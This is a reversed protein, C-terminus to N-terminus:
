RGPLGRAEARWLVEIVYAAPFDWHDLLERMLLEGGVKPALSRFATGLCGLGEEQSPRRRIKLKHVETVDM